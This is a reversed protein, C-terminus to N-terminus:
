LLSKIYGVVIHWWSVVTSWYEVALTKFADIVGYRISLLLITLNVVWMAFIFLYSRLIGVSTIDTQHTGIQSRFCGIHFAATFGIMIDFIYLSNAASLERLFLLLYTFIPLCYPALSIFITGFRLGGSHSMEGEGEGAEFSHIKRLFMMGVITHSLEHSFTRLWELNKNFIRIISLVFYAAMGVGVWMFASYHSISWGIVPIIATIGLAILLIILPYSLIRLM